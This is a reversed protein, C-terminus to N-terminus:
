GLDLDSPKGAVFYSMGPKKPKTEKPPREKPPKQGPNIVPPPDKPPKKQDHKQASVGFTLGAVAAFIFLLQRLTKM